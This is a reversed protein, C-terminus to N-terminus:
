VSIQPAADDHIRHVFQRMVDRQVKFADLVASAVNYAEETAEILNQFAAYEDRQRYTAQVQKETPKKWNKAEAPDAPPTLLQLSVGAAWQRYRRDSAAWARRAHAAIRGWTMVAGAVRAVRERLNADTLVLERMVQQLDLPGAPTVVGTEAVTFTQVPPMAALRALYGEAEM